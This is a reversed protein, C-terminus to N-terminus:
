SNNRTIKMLIPGTHDDILHKLESINAKLTVLFTKYYQLANLLMKLNELKAVFRDFEWRSSSCIENRLPAKQESNIWVNQAYTVPLHRLCNELCM